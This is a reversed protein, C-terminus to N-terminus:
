IEGHIESIGVYTHTDLTGPRWMRLNFDTFSNGDSVCSVKPTVAAM